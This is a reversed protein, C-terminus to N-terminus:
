PTMGATAIRAFGDLRSNLAAVVSGPDPVPHVLTIENNQTVSPRDRVAIAGGARGALASQIQDVRNGLSLLRALKANSLIMGPRDPFFGEQGTEGVITPEGPRVRGGHRKHLWGIHVHDFHDAVQWLVQTFVKGLLQRAFSALADMKSMIGAFDVAFGTIHQSNEAGGAAANASPSRLWSSIALQFVNALMKGQNLVDYADKAPALQTFTGPTNLNGLLQRIPDFISSFNTSSVDGAVAQAARKNVDDKNL